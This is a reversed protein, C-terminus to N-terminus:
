LSLRRLCTSRARSVPVSPFRVGFQQIGLRRVYHEAAPYDLDASTQGRHDTLHGAAAWESRHDAAPLGPELYEHPAPRGAAADASTSTSPQKASGVAWSSASWNRMSRRM